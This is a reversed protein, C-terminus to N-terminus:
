SCCPGDDPEQVEIGKAGMAAKLHERTTAACQGRLEPDKMIQFAQMGMTLGVGALGLLWSSEGSSVFARITANHKAGEALAGALADANTEVVLAYPQTPPLSATVTWVAGM